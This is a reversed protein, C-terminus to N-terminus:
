LKTISTQTLVEDDKLKVIIEYEHIIFLLTQFCYVRITFQAM